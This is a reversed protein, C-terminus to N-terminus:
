DEFRHRQHRHQLFEGLQQKQEPNLSDVFEGLSAILAPARDNVLQTKQQVMQLARAQDFVPQNLLESVETMQQQRAPRVDNMAAVVSEALAVFKLQQAETLDLKRSVRESVFEVKEAPTMGWDGHKSFAYVISSSGALLLAATIIRTSLKMSLKM